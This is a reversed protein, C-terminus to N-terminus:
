VKNEDLILDFHNYKWDLDTELANHIQSQTIVDYTKLKPSISEKLVNRPWIPFTVQDM